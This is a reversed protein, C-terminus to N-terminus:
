PKQEDQEPNQPDEEPPDNKSAVPATTTEDKVYIPSDARLHTNGATVVWEGVDIGEVVEVKNSLTYGLKLERREARKAPRKEEEIEEEIEEENEEENESKAEKDEQSCGRFFDISFGNEQEEEKVKDKDDEKPLPESVVFAVPQGDEYVVSNAPMVPVNTHRDVEIKARVFQGPRMPSNQDDLQLFVKASGINPDIVPSIREIHGTSELKEDYAASLRVVQNTHLLQLDRESVDIRLRLAGPDVIQFISAGGAQEGPQIGVMAVVGEIPSRVLTGQTNQVAEEHNTVSQKWTSEAEKFERESIAGQKYLAEANSWEREARDKEIM